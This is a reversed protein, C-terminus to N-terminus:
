QMNKSEELYNVILIDQDKVLAPVLGGMNSFQSLYSLIIHMTAIKAVIIVDMVFLPQLSMWNHFQKEM